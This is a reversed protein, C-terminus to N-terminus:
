LMRKIEGMMADIRKGSVPVATKLEQAFLSVKYEEILWGFEEIAQRKADSANETLEQITKEHWVVLRSIEKGRELAKELHVAGREARIALARLYRGIHILREEDHRILFDAPLLRSLEDRLEALFSLVPRNGRNTCELFRLRETTEYLFKIPPTAKEVIAQGLPLIRSRVKDVHGEFAAGNRIDSEFLDHMVKDMISTELIKVGGFASAWLRLDGAPSIGKRLHKLEDRLRLAMLAGVGKRHARRAEPDSAFLRIDITAKGAVLAPFVVTAYPDAPGETLTIREPLDGFDWSTLDAKEWLRRAKVLAQSEKAGAFEQRLIGIDRGVALECGKGDTVAFRLKLHDDLEELPWRDAPIDVGFKKYIFRSLSTPLTGKREMETLIIEGTHGLPLLRKRYEKPLGKLLAMVKGKVLGPVAWDMSADRISPIAQAPIKLTIGDEPNGPDFRYRCDLRWNGTSVTEPFLDIEGMDPTKVYLDEEKMRLFLDGERDRILRQL